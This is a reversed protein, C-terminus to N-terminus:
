DSDFMMSRNTLTYISLGLAIITYIILALTFLLTQTSSVLGALGSASYLTTAGVTFTLLGSFAVPYISWAKKKWLGVGAALCVAGLLIMHFLIFRSLIVTSINVLGYLIYITPVIKEKM